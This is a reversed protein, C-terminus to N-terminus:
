SWVEFDLRHMSQVLYLLMDHNYFEQALQAALETQPEQSDTGYLLNKM